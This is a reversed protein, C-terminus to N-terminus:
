KMGAKVLEKVKEEPKENRMLASGVLVADISTKKLKEIDAGTEIGSESVLPIGGPVLPALTFTTEMDIQFTDLDRNNIGLLDAECEIAKELDIRDHIETLSTMGYERCADILDKLQHHTLIRAILLVADAGYQSAELVQIPDIIFDKRLIPLSVAKKLPPLNKLDGGFFERDTLFSIASAGSREYTKGISVPDTKERITGASPSAFKIESILSIYGQSSITKKFDRIPPIDIDKFVSKEKKLLAVERKKVELIERLKQHM